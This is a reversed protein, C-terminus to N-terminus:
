RDGSYRTERDRIAQEAIEVIGTGQMSGIVAEPNEAPRLPGIRRERVPPANRETVAERILRQLAQEASVNDREMIEEIVRAEPSDDPIELDTFKFDM